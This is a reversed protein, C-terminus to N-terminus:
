RLYSLGPFPFPRHWLRSVCLFLNDSNKALHFRALPHSINAPLHSDPLREDSNTQSRRLGCQCRMQTRFHRSSDPPPCKNKPSTNSASPTSKTPAPAKRLRKPSRWTSALSCSLRLREKVAFCCVCLRAATMPWRVCGVPRVNGLTIQGHKMLEGLYPLSQDLSHTRHRVIPKSHPEV